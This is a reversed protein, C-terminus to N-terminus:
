FTGKQRRKTLRVLYRCDYVVSVSYDTTENTLLDDLSAFSAAIFLRDDQGIRRVTKADIHPGDVVSGGALSSDLGTQFNTPNNGPNRLIWTRRWIWPEKIAATALPSYSMFREVQTAADTGQTGIPEAPSTQDARAVFFGVGVILTEPTLLTPPGSSLIQPFVGIKGVIRRLIYDSGLQDALRITRNETVSVQDVPEDLVVPQILTPLFGSTQQDFNAGAAVTLFRHNCAVDDGPSFSTGIPQVWSYKTRRRGRAM